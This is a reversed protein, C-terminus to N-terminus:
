PWLWSIAVLLSTRSSRFSLANARSVSFPWMRAVLSRRRMVPQRGLSGRLRVRRAVASVARAPRVGRRRSTRVSDSGDQRATGPLFRGVQRCASRDARPGVQNM